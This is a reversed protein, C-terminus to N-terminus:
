RVSSAALEVHEQHQLVPRRGAPQVGDPLKDPYIAHTDPAVGFVYHAGMEEVMRKRQEVVLRWRELQEAELRLEGTHQGLVDNTDGALFLWGDRGRLVKGDQAPQAAVFATSGPEAHAGDMGGQQLRMCHITTLRA